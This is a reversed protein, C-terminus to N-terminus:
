SYNYFFGLDVVFIYNVIESMWDFIVPFTFFSSSHGQLFLFDISFIGYNIHINSNTSLPMLHKIIFTHMRNLSILLSM